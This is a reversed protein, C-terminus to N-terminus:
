VLILISQMYTNALLPAVLFCLAALWVFFKCKFISNGKYSM